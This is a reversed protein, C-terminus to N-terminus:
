IFSMDIKGLKVGGVLTDLAISGGDVSSFNAEGFSFIELLGMTVLFPQYLHVM